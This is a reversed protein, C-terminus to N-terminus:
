GRRQGVRDAEPRVFLYSYYRRGEIESGLFAGGILGPVAASESPALAVFEGPEVDLTFALLGIAGVTRDPLVRWGGRADRGWRPGTRERWVTPLVRMRVRRADREDPGVTVQVINRSAPWTSGSLGGDESLTFLTQDRPELDLELLLPVNPRVAVSESRHVRLGDVSEIAARVADWWREHGIGVRFGNDRLILATRSDFVEERVHNWILGASALEGQPVQVHLITLTISRLRAFAEPTPDAPTPTTFGTDATPAETTRFDARHATPAATRSQEAISYCGLAVPACLLPLVGVWRRRSTRARSLGFQHVM